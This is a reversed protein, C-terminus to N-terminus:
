SNLAQVEEIVDSEPSACRVQLPRKHSICERLLRVIADYAPNKKLLKYFRASELFVVDIYDAGQPERIHAPTMARFVRKERQQSDPKAM